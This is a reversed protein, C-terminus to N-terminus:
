KGRGKLDARGAAASIPYGNAMAKCYCGLDPKFGFEHHSGQVDLRFGARIDDLILLADHRQCVQNVAEVFETTAFTSGDFLPHHYPTVVVAAVDDRNRSFAADLSQPNNWQFHDVQSQDAETLGGHGPTCWPASGHYAREVVLIKRRRTAERAVQTCWTTVDSGNKAFVAWDAFDILDVLREALQVAFETPHNFCLGDQRVRQAAAEVEPHGHGLVVPGYGCMFDLYENGDVDWYRCGQARAAYYPSRGPEMLAPTVHGYIGGPIVAEARQFLAMSRQYRNEARGTATSALPSETDASQIM